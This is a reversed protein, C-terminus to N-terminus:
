GVFRLPVTARDRGELHVNVRDGVREFCLDVRRDGVAIRRVIVKNIGPPLAPREVRVEGRWGDIEVGLCAQLLM